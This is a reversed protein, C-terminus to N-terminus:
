NAEVMVLTGCNDQHVERGDMLRVVCGIGNNIDQEDHLLVGLNALEQDIVESYNEDHAQAWWIAKEVARLIQQDTVQM